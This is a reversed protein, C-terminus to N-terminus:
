VLSNTPIYIYLLEQAPQRVCKQLLRVPRALKVDLSEISVPLNGRNENVVDFGSSLMLTLDDKCVATVHDALEQLLNQVIAKKNNKIAIMEKDRGVANVFATQLEPMAIKLEALAPPPPLFIENDEMKELVRGGTVLLDHQHIKYIPLIRNM